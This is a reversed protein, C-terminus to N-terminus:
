KYIWLHLCPKIFRKRKIYETKFFRDLINNKNTAIIIKNIPVNFKEKAIYGAFADGFNGTPM